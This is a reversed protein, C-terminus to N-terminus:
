NTATNLPLALALQFAPNLAAVYVMLDPFFASFDAELDDYSAEIELVADAMGKGNKIRGSIRSLTAMVGELDENTELLYGLNDRSARFPLWGQLLDEHRQLRQHVDDIFDQFTVQSYVKWHRILFHDYCIDLIIGAFRRWKGSFRNRATLARPHENSYSDIQRHLMIGEGIQGPFQGNVKGKVFDAILNGVLLDDSDGSLFLHALYNM